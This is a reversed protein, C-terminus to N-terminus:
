CEDIPALYQGIGQQWPYVTVDDLKLVQPVRALCIAEVPSEFAAAIKQLSKIHDARIKETSKVEILLLPQGPREIVLDVELGDYTRLYSLRYDPYFYHSLKYCEVIVFQEFLKGYEYTGESLSLSLTRSLARVIGVDIFYFKPKQTLPM